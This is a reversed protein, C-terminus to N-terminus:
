QIAPMHVSQDGHTHETVHPRPFPDLDLDHLGRFARQTPPLPLSSLYQWSGSQGTTVAVPLTLSIM